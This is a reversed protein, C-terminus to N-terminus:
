GRLANSDQTRHGGSSPSPGRRQEALMVSALAYDCSKRLIFELLRIQPGSRNALSGFPGIVLRNQGSGTTSLKPLAVPASLLKMPLRKAWHGLLPVTLKAADLFELPPCGYWVVGADIEPIAVMSLLTRAGGMCFGAVKKSQGKLFQVAGRLDQGAADGFDLESM